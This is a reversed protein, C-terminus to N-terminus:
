FIPTIKYVSNLTYLLDYGEFVEQKQVESTYFWNDGYNVFLCCCENSYLLNVICSDIVFGPNFGNPHQNNFKTDEIKEVKISVGNYKEFNIKNKNM